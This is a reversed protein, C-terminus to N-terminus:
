PASLLHPDHPSLLTLLAAREDDTCPTFPAAAHPPCLGRAHLIAKISPVGPRVRHLATLEDILRQAREAEGDREGHHAALLTQAPGPAINAIGPVIGHAGLRLGALLQGEAGQSVGFGPNRRAAAVAHALLEVDGSSDKLGVVHDLAALADILDPTLPCSYRPANYAVVPVGLDAFAAYHALIEDERHHFYIPPSLVLADPRAPLVAEARALAEATGAATVNVLVPGAGGAPDDPGAHGSSMLGPSVLAEATLERWHRSVGSAFAALARTPLLPGEGNSGFLMLGRAGAEALAALLPKAAAASPVGPRRMPTVLPVVLGGLLAHGDAPTPRPNSM